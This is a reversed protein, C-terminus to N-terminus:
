RVAAFLYSAGEQQHEAPDFLFCPDVAAKLPADVNFFTAGANVGIELYRRGGRLALLQNMLDSSM